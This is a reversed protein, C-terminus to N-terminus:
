VNNIEASILVDRKKGESGLDRTESILLIVRRNSKPEYSLLRVGEGIADTLRSTSSGAHITKIATEIRDSDNTFPQLLQLRHDFALVAAKGMEGVILQNLLE